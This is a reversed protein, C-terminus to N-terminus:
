ARIADIRSDNAHDHTSELFIDELTRQRAQIGEVLLDTAALRRVLEPTTGPEIRLHILHLGTDPDDERGILDFPGIASAIDPSHRVMVTVEGEVRKLDDVRGELVKKGHNIIVVRECLQEVEVLLHSSIFVTLGDDKALRQVLKRIGSIGHPDLGNTPEDLILFRSAPLLAQAIGLRQKMGYSFTSVKKHMAQALGVRDLTDAIVAKDVPGSLSVLACLNDWASLYDFFVPAEVVAGVERMIQNRKTFLDLGFISIDGSSPAALGLLIRILTTKGAGNPGLFGFLEGAPIDLDIPALAEFRGYRKSVGRCSVLSAPDTM